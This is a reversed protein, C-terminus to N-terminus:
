SELTYSVRSLLIELGMSIKTMCVVETCIVDANGKRKCFMWREWSHHFGFVSFCTMSRDILMSLLLMFPDRIALVKDSEVMGDLDPSRLNVPLLLFIPYYIEDVVRVFLKWCYIKDVGLNYYAIGMCRMYELDYGTDVCLRAWSAVTPSRSLFFFDSSRARGPDSHLHM